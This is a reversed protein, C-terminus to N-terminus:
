EVSVVAPHVVPPGVGADSSRRSLTADVRSALVRRLCDRVREDDSLVYAVLTESRQAGDSAFAAWFDSPATLMAQLVLCVSQDRCLRVTASAAESRVESCLDFVGVLTRTAFDPWQTSAARCLRILASVCVSELDALDHDDSPNDHLDVAVRLVAQVPEVLCEVQQVDTVVLPTSPNTLLQTLMSQAVLGLPVVAPPAALMTELLEAVSGFARNRDAITLPADVVRKLCSIAGSAFQIPTQIALQLFRLLAPIFPSSAPYLELAVATVGDVLATYVNSFEDVISTSASQEATVTTSLIRNMYPVVTNDQIRAWVVDGHAGALVDLMERLANLTPPSVPLDSGIAMILSRVVSLILNNLADHDAGVEGVNRIVHDTIFGMLAVAHLQVLPFECHAMVDLVTVLENLEDNNLKTLHARCLFSVMNLILMVTEIQKEKSAFTLVVLIGHWASQISSIHVPVLGALCAIVRHWLTSSHRAGMISVFVDVFQGQLKAVEASAQRSFAADLITGVANIVKEAQKTPSQNCAQVFHMRVIAWMQLITDVDRDLNLIVIKAIRDITQTGGLALEQTSIACISVCYHIFAGQPLKPTALYVSQLHEMLARDIAPSRELNWLFQLVAEWSEDLDRGHNLGLDLVIEIVYRHSATLSSTTGSVMTAPAFLKTSNVLSQVFATRAVVAGMAMSLLVFERYSDICRRWTEADLACHETAVGLAALAPPWGNVLLTAIGEKATSLDISTRASRLARGENLVFVPQDLPGPSAPQRTVPPPPSSEPLLHLGIGVGSDRRLPADPSTTISQIFKRLSAAILGLARVAQVIVPHARSSSSSSQEVASSIAGQLMKLVSTFLKAASPHSARPIFLDGLVQPRFSLYALLELLILVHSEQRLSGELVVSMLHNVALALGNPLTRSFSEAISGLVSVALRFDRASPSVCHSIFPGVLYENLVEAVVPNSRFRPGANRLILLIMERAFTQQRVDPGDVYPVIRKMSLRLITRLATLVEQIMDPPSSIPASEEGLEIAVTDVLNRVVNAVDAEDAPRVPFTEYRDVMTTLIQTLTASAMAQNQANDNRAYVDFCTRVCVVVSDLHMRSTTSSAATLVVKLGHNKVTNNATAIAPHVVSLVEDVTVLDTPSDISIDHVSIVANKALLQNFTDLAIEVLANSQSAVAASLGDFVAKTLRPQGRIAALSAQAAGKIAGQRWGCTRVIRNLGDEAVAAAAM